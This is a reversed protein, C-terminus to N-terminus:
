TLMNIEAFMMVDGDEIVMAVAAMAMMRTKDTTVIAVPSPSYVRKLSTVYKTQNM